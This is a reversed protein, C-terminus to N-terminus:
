IESPQSSDVMQETPWPWRASPSARRSRPRPMREHTSQGSGDDQRLTTRLYLEDILPPRSASSPASRPRTATSGRAARSTTSPCSATTSRGSWSRASPASCTSSGGSRGCIPARSAAGRSTPRRSRACRSAATQASSSGTPRPSTASRSRPTSSPASPLIGHTAAVRPAIEPERVRGHATYANGSFGSGMLKADAAQRDGEALHPERCGDRHDRPVAGADMRGPRPLGRRDQRRTRPDGGLSVGHRSMRAGGVGPAARRERRALDGWPDLDGRAGARLPHSRSRRTIEAALRSRWLPHAPSPICLLLPILRARPLPPRRYASASGGTRPGSAVQECAPHGARLHTSPAPSRGCRLQPAAAGRAGFGSRRLPRTPRIQPWSDRWRM